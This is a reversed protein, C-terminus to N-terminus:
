IIELPIKRDPSPFSRNLRERDEDDLRIKSAEVNELVHEKKGSRPIAAVNKQDLVFALLIQLPGVGHKEAVYGVDENRLLARRLSGAQALPSYAMIPIGMKKHWPLLDYEIGRAGLHYMVQNVACNEGGPISLLEEMDDIDFNSVGWNRIKGEAVLEEMYKVTDSLSASGRWHLLYLDLYDTRMFSLTHRLSKGVRDKKMNSPYIKSVLFLDERRCDRVVQGVLQESLGGGYMEATDIMRIGESIGTKLAEIEQERTRMNEGLYWTGMGLRPMCAGNKLKIYDKM